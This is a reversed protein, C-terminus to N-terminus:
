LSKDTLASEIMDIYEKTGGENMNGGNPFPPNSNFVRGNKLIFVTPFSEINYKKLLPHQDAQGMTYLNIDESDTYIGKAVSKIWKEKDRDISISVFVVGPNNKYKDHITKMLSHLNVCNECGTYWFDLIVVKQGLDSLSVLKGRTDPLEFAYFPTGKLSTGKINLLIDRYISGSSLSISVDLYDTIPLGKKQYLLFFLALLKDRLVAHFNSKITNFTKKMSYSWDIHGNVTKYNDFRIKEFLFECYIPAQVLINPDATRQNAIFANLDRYFNSEMVAQYLGSMGPSSTAGRYGLVLAYYRLGYCNAMMISTLENGMKLAYKKVIKQQLLLCSDMKKNNIEVYKKFDNPHNIPSSSDQYISSSTMYIETECNLKEAGKGSFKFGNNNLDVTFNDGDALIYVNDIYQWSVENPMDYYMNMYFRKAPSKIQLHFPENYKAMIEYRHNSANIMTSGSFPYESIVILVKSKGGPLNKILSDTIKGNLIVGRFNKSSNKQSYASSIFFILMLLTFKFSKM